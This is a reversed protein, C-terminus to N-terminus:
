DDHESRYRHEEDDHEHDSYHDSRVPEATHANSPYPQQQQQYQPQQDAGLIAGAAAGIAGGILAGEGTRNNQSGIVAGAAAGVAAGRATSQEQHPTACASLLLVSSLLIAPTTYKM